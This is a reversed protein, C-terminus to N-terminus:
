FIFIFSILLGAALCNLSSSILVQPLSRHIAYIIWIVSSLFILAFTYISLGSASKDIIAKIIQPYLAIGSLLGNIEAIKDIPHGHQGFKTFSQLFNFHMYYKHNIM